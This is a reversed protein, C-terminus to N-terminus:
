EPVVYQSVHGHKIQWMGDDGRVMVFTRAVMTRPLMMGEAYTTTQANQSTVVVADPGLVDVQVPDFEEMVTAAIPAYFEDLTTALGDRDWVMGHFAFISGDPVHAMVADADAAGMADVIDQWATLASAEVEAREADTMGSPAPACASAALVALGGFFVTPRIM